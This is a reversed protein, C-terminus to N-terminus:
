SSAQPKREFELALGLELGNFSMSLQTRANPSHHGIVRMHTCCQMLGTSYRLHRLIHVGMCAVGEKYSFHETKNSM